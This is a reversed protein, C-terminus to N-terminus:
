IYNLIDERNMSALLRYDISYMDIDEGTTENEYSGSYILLNTKLADESVSMLLEPNFHLHLIGDEHYGFIDLLMLRKSWENLPRYGEFYADKLTFVTYRRNEFCEALVSPENDENYSSSNFFYSRM